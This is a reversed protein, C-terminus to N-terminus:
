GRRDHLEPRVGLAGDARGYVVAEIEIELKRLRDGVRVQRLDLGLHALDQRGPVLELPVHEGCLVGLFLIRAIFVLMLQDIFEGFIALLDAEVFGAIIPVKAAAAVDRVHLVDVRPRELQVADGACVPTAVLLVLHQRADISQGERGLFFEIGIQRHHCLGLFAVVLLQPRLQIEKHEM